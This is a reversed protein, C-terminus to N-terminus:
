EKNSMTSEIPTTEEVKTPTTFSLDAFNESSEDTINQTNAVKSNSLHVLKKHEELAQGVEFIKSCYPCKHM